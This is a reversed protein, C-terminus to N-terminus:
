FDIFEGAAVNESDADSKCNEDNKGFLDTGLIDVRRSYKGAEGKDNTRAFAYVDGKALLTRVDGHAFLQKHRQRVGIVQRYFEVLEKDERGWPYTRRCDPDASGYVGAEDGYYITPMGPYGMLFM